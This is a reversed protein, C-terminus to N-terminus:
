SKYISEIASAVNTNDVVNMSLHASRQELLDLSSLFSLVSDVHIVSGSEIFDKYNEMGQQGCVFSPVGFYDSEIVASSCETFHYNSIKVLESFPMEDIYKGSIVTKSVADLNIKSHKPHRKIIWLITDVTDKIIATMLEPLDTQDQLTIIGVKKNNGKLRMNLRVSKYKQLELQRDLWSFGGVVSTISQHSDFGDDIKDKDYEGWVWFWDPFMSYGNTPLGQWHNYVPSWGSQVGHQLDVTKIGLEHAALALAYHYDFGVYFVAKPRKKNLIEKYFNKMHFFWEVTDNIDKQVFPISPIHTNVKSIFDSPLDLYHVHGVGRILPPLIKVPKYHWRTALVGPSKIVEIKECTYKKSAEEYVPDTIRHYVKGKIKTQETGRLNVFFLFDVKEDVLDEVEICDHSKKYSGFWDKAIFAKQPNVVSVNKNGKYVQQLRVWFLHRFIPWLYVDSERNKYMLSHVPYANQFQLLEQGYEIDSKQKSSMKGEIRQTIVITPKGKLKKNIWSDEFFKRPNHRLKTLKSM